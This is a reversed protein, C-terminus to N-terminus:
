ASRARTAPSATPAGASETAPAQATRTSRVDTARWSPAATPTSRASRVEVPPRPVECTFCLTGLESACCGGPEGDVCLEEACADLTVGRVPDLSVALPGGNWLTDEIAEIAEQQKPDEVDHQACAALSLALVSVVVIKASM